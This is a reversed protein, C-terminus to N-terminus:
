VSYLILGNRNLNILKKSTYEDTALYFEKVPRPIEEDYSDLWTFKGGKNDIM